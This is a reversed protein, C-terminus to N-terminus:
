YASWKGDCLEAASRRGVDAVAACADICLSVDTISESRGLHESRLRGLDVCVCLSCDLLLPVIERLPPLLLVLELQVPHLITSRTHLEQSERPIDTSRTLINTVGQM